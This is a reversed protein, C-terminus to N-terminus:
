GFQASDTAFLKRWLASIFGLPTSRRNHILVPTIAADLVAETVSGLLRSAARTRGRTSMVILDVEHARATEIIASSVLSHRKILPLVQRHPHGLDLQLEALLKKERESEFTPGLANPTKVHLALCEIGDRPALLGLTLSLAHAATHRDGVPFLIRRVPGASVCDPLLWVPCPSAM